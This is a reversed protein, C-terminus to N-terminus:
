HFVQLDFPFLEQACGCRVVTPGKQFDPDRIPQLLQGVATGVPFRTAHQIQQGVLDFPVIPALVLNGIGAIRYYTGLEDPFPVPDFM